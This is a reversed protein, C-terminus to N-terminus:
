KAARGRIRTVCFVAVVIAFLAGGMYPVWSWDGSLHHGTGYASLSTAASFNIFGGSSSAGSGPSLLVSVRPLGEARGGFEAQLARVFGIALLVTGLALLVAGAIGKVLAKLERTVPELAEQKAYAIVLEALEGAQDKFGGGAGRPSAGSSSKPEEGPM